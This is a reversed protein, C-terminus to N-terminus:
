QCLVSHSVFHKFKFCKMKVTESEVMILHWQTVVWLGFCSLTWFMIVVISTIWCLCEKPPRACRNKCLLNKSEDTFCALPQRSHANSHQKHEHHHLYCITSDIFKGQRKSMLYIM